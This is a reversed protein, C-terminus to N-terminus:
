QRSLRLLAVGSAATVAVPGFSVHAWGMGLVMFLVYAWAAVIAPPFRRMLWAYAAGTTLAYGGWAWFVGFPGLHAALGAHHLWMAWGAALLLATAAISPLVILAALVVADGIQKTRLPLAGHRCPAAAEPLQPPCWGSGRFPIVNSNTTM